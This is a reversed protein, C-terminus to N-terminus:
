KVVIDQVKCPHAGQNGMASALPRAGPVRPPQGRSNRPNRRQRYYFWAGLLGFAYVTDSASVRYPGDKSKKTEQDKVTTETTM